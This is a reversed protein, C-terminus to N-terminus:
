YLPFEWIHSEIFFLILYIYLSAHSCFRFLFPSGLSAWVLNPSAAKRCKLLFLYHSKAKPLKYTCMCACSSVHSLASARRDSSSLCCFLLHESHQLVLVRYFKGFILFIAICIKVITFPTWKFFLASTGVWRSFDADIFDLDNRLNRNIILHCSWLNTM